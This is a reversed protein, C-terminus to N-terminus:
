KGTPVGVTQANKFAKFFGAEMIAAGYDPVWGGPPIMSEELAKFDADEVQIVKTDDKISAIIAKLKMYQEISDLSQGFKSNMSIADKLFAKFTAEKEIEDVTGDAKKGLVKWKVSSPVPIDIIKM